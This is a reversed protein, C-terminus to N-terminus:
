AAGAILYEELHPKHVFHEVDATTIHWLFTSIFGTVAQLGVDLPMLSDLGITGNGVGEDVYPCIHIRVGDRNM